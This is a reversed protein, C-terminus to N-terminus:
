IGSFLCTNSFRYGIPTQYNLTSHIRKRNYFLEIYDFLDAEVESLDKYHRRHIREKKLQAFFSEVCANDYPCGPASMSGRMGHIALTNQFGAATYQCGRDSHFITGEVGPYRGVAEGLARKVLETDNRRGVAYGIIERNFLEMVVALYVWGIRTKIYTVDGVWVVNPALPRFDRRVLNDQYFDDDRHHRFPTHKVKSVSYFGHERMIRRVKWESVWLGANKLEGRVKGPGFTDDSGHFAEEIASVLAEERKRRETRKAEQQRWQYYSQEKVGLVRCMKRVSHRPELRRM